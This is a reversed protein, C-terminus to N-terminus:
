EALKNLAYEKIAQEALRYKMYEPYGDEVLMDAFMLYQHDDTLPIGDSISIAGRAVEKIDEDTFADRLIEVPSLIKM